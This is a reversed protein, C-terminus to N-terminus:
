PEGTFKHLNLSFRSIARIQISYDVFKNPNGSYNTSKMFAPYYILNYDKFKINDITQPLACKNLSLTFELLVNITLKKNLKRIFVNLVYM